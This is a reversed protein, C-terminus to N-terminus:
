EGLFRQLDALAQRLSDPVAAHRHVLAEQFEVLATRTSLLTARLDRMWPTAYDQFASERLRDRQEPTTEGLAKIWDELREIPLPTKRKGEAVIVDHVMSNTSYGIARGVDLQTKGNAAMLASYLERFTAVDALLM